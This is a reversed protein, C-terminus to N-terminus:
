WGCIFLNIKKIKKFNLTNKLTGNRTLGTSGSHVILQTQKTNVRATQANSPTPALNAKRPKSGPHTLRIMLKAADYLNDTIFPNTPTIVSSMNLGKSEACM